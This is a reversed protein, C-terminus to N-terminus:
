RAVSRGHLRSPNGPTGVAFAVAQLRTHAGLKLRVNQVHTRATSRSIRMEVAIDRTEQGAIMRDLVEYERHTLRCTTPGFRHWQPGPQPRSPARLLTEAGVPAEGAAVREITHRLARLTADKRVFGRIGADLAEDVFGAPLDGVLAVIKTEPARRSIEAAAVLCEADPVPIDLLCMDPQRREIIDPLADRNTTTAVVVATPEELAGALSEACIEHEIYVM